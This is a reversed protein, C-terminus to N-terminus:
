DSVALALFLLVACVRFWEGLFLWSAWSKAVPCACLVSGYQHLLILRFYRVRAELPWRYPFSTPFQFTSFLAPAERRLALYFPVRIAWNALTAVVAILVILELV